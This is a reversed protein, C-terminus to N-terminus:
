RLKRGASHAEFKSLVSRQTTATVVKRLTTRVATLGLNMATVTATMAAAPPSMAIMELSRSTVVTKPALDVMAKGQLLLATVAAPLLTAAAAEPLLRTMQPRTTIPMALLRSAAAMTRARAVEMTELKGRLLNDTEAAPALSAAQRVLLPITAQIPTTQPVATVTVSGTTTPAVEAATVTIEQTARVMRQVRPRAMQAAQAARIMQDARAKAETGRAVLVAAAVVIVLDAQARHNTTAMMATMEMMATARTTEVTAAELGEAAREM